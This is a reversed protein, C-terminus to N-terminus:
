NYCLESQAPFNRSEVISAYIWIWRMTRSAFMRSVLTGAWWKIRFNAMVSSRGLLIKTERELFGYKSELKTGFFGVDFTLDFPGFERNILLNQMWSTRVGM